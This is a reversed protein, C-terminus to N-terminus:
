WQVINSKKWQVFICQCTLKLHSTFLCHISLTSHCKPYTWISSSIKLHRLFKPEEGARYIDSGFSKSCGLITKQYTDLEFPSDWDVSPKVWKRSTKISTNGCEGWWPFEVLWTRVQDAIRFMRLHDRQQSDSWTTADCHTQGRILLFFVTSGM